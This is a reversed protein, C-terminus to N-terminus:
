CYRPSESRYPGALQTGPEHIPIIGKQLGKIKDKDVCIVKNGGEALCAGAALGVYGVGIISIKM